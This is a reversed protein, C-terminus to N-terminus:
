NVISNIIDDYEYSVSSYIGEERTIARLLTIEYIDKDWGKNYLYYDKIRSIIKYPYILNIKTVQWEERTLPNKMHYYSLLKGLVGPRLKSYKAINSVLRRIDHAPLAQQIYDLDIVYLKGSPTLITNKRHFDFHALGGIKEIKKVWFLYGSKDLQNQLYQIRKLYKPITEMFISAFKSHSNKKFEMSYINQLLELDENYDSPWKGLRSTVFIGEPISFGRSAKHFRALETIIIKLQDDISYNIYEGEIADFLIFNKNDLHVYSQGEITLNISPINIMNARLYEVVAIIFNVRNENCPLKKLVKLGQDTEVWWVGRNDRICEPYVKNIKFQYSDLVTLLRSNENFDM